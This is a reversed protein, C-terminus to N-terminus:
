FDNELQDSIAGPYRNNKERFNEVGRMVLYWPATSEPDFMNEAIDDTNPSDLEKIISSM